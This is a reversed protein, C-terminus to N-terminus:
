FNLNYFKERIVQFRNSVILEVLRILIESNHPYLLYNGFYQIIYSDNNKMNEYLTNEFCVRMAREVSEWTKKYKQAIIPYIDKSIQITSDFNVICIFIADVWYRYGIKSVPIKLDNFIIDVDNTIYDFFNELSDNKNKYYTNNRIYISKYSNDLGLYEEAKIM